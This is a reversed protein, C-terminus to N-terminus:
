GEGYASLAYLKRHEEDILVESPLDELLAYKEILDKFKAGRDSLGHYFLLCM